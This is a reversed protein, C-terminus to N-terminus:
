YFKIKFFKVSNLFVIYWIIYIIYKVLNELFFETVACNAVNRKKKKVEDMVATTTDGQFYFYLMRMSFFCSRWCPGMFLGMNKLSDSCNSIIATLLCFYFLIFVHV